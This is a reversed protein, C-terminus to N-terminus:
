SRALKSVRKIEDRVAEEVIRELNQDMWDRVLPKMLEAVFEDLRPYAGNNNGTKVSETLNSLSASFANATRDSMLGKFSHESIVNQVPENPEVTDVAVDTDLAIPPKVAMGVAQIPAPSEPASVDELRGAVAPVVPADAPLLNAQIFAAMMTDAVHVPAPSVTTLTEMDTEALAAVPQLPQTPAAIIEDGVAVTQIKVTEDQKELPIIGAFPHNSITHGSGSETQVKLISQPPEPQASMNVPALPTGINEPTVRMQNNQVLAPFYDSLFEANAKSPQFDAQHAVVPKDVVPDAAIPKAVPMFPHRTDSLQTQHASVDVSVAQPLKPQASPMSPNSSTQSWPFEFHQGDNKTATSRSPNEMEESIIRRISALVEEMSPEHSKNSQVSM